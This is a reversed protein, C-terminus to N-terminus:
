RGSINKIYWFDVATLTVVTAIQVTGSWDFMSSMIYRSFNSNKTESFIPILLSGDFHLLYFMSMMSESIFRTLFIEFVNYISKM